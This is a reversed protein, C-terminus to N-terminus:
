RCEEEELIHLNDNKFITVANNMRVAGFLFPYDTKCLLFYDLVLYAERIFFIEDLLFIEFICYVLSKRIANGGRWM